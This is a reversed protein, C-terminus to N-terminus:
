LAGYRRRGGTLDTAGQDRGGENSYEVEPVPIRYFSSTQEATMQEATTEREGSRGPSTSLDTSGSPANAAGQGCGVVVMMVFGTVAIILLYKM